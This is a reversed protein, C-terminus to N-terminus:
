MILQTAPARGMALKVVVVAGVVLPAVMMNQAGVLMKQAAVLLQAVTINQAANLVQVKAQPALYYDKKANRTYYAIRAKKCGLQALV